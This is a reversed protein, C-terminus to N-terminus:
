ESSYGLTEALIDISCKDHAITFLQRSIIIVMMIIKIIKLHLQFYTVTGLTNLISFLGRFILLFFIYRPHGWLYNWTLM